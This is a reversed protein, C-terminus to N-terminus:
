STFVLTLDTSGSYGTGGATIWDNLSDTFLATESAWPDDWPFRYIFDVISLIQFDVVIKCRSADIDAGRGQSPPEGGDLIDIVLNGTIDFTNPTGAVWPSSTTARTYPVITTQGIVADDNDLGNQCRAEWPGMPNIMMAFEGKAQPPAPDSGIHPIKEIIKRTIVPVDAGYIVDTREQATLGTVVPRTDIIRTDTGTMSIESLRHPHNYFAQQELFDELEAKKSKIVEALTM